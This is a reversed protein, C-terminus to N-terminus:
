GFMEGDDRCSERSEKVAKQVDVLTSRIETIDGEL